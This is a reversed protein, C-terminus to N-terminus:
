FGITFAFHWVFQLVGPARVDSTIDDIAVKALEMLLMSLVLMM